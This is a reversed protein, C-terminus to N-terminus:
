KLYIEILDKGIKYSHHIILGNMHISKGKMLYKETRIIRLEDWLDTELYSQILKGGGEVLLSGINQSFLFSSINELSLNGQQNLEIAVDNKNLKQSSIRKAVNPEQFLSLQDPLVHNRDLVFKLPNKGPFYRTDLTPNDILATKTGVLIADSEGRWKHTLRSTVPSSLWTNIPENSAYFGDKSVALKLITYPRKETVFISRQKVLEKGKEILINQIVEINQEELLRVGNGNVEPTVDLASIVVKKIKKDVILHTCPPTKSFINCPELSVYLTANKLRDSHVHKVQSIANVEAHAKGYEQHFGEGIIEGNEVLVSGVMPNPSVKKGGNRAIEICRLIFHAHTYQKM